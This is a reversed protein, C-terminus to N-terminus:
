RRGGDMEAKERRRLRRRILVVVIGLAVAAPVLYLLLASVINRASDQFFANHDNPKHPVLVEAIIKIDDTLHPSSKDSLISLPNYNSKQEVM